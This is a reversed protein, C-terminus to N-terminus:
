YVSIATVICSQITIYYFAHSTGQELQEIQSQTFATRNRQLKRRELRRTMQQSRDSVVTGAAARHFATAARRDAKDVICIDQQKQRRDSSTTTLRDSQARSWWGITVCYTYSDCSSTVIECKRRRSTLVVELHRKLLYVFYSHRWFYAFAGLWNTYRQRHRTKKMEHTNDVLLPSCLSSWTFTYFGRWFYSIM